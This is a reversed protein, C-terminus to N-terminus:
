PRRPAAAWVCRFGTAQSAHDPKFGYKYTTTCRAPYPTNWSGGRVVYEGEDFRPHPHRTRTWQWVLGCMDECGYPSSGTVHTGTPVIERRNFALRAPNWTNGWPHRRGDTGRAAKEWEAETPLRAGAWKCYAEADRKSVQTVPLDPEHIVSKGGDPRRWDAAKGKQWADEGSSDSSSYVSSRGRKEADTRYGTASVFASFQGVTVPRASIYFDPLTVIRQPEQDQLRQPELRLLSQLEKAADRQGAQTMSRGIALTEALAAAFADPRSGMTFPGAPVRLMLSGDRAARFAQPLPQPLPAGMKLTPPDTSQGVGVAALVPGLGLGDLAARPARELVQGPLITRHTVAVAVVVPLDTEQIGLQKECYLREAPIEWHYLLVRVEKHRQARMLSHWCRYALVTSSRPHSNESLRGVVLLARDQAQCAGSALLTAAFVVLLALELRWRAPIPLM